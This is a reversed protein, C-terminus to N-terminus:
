CDLTVPSARFIEVNQLKYLQNLRHDRVRAWAGLSWAEQTNTRVITTGANYSICREVPEFLIDFRRDRSV